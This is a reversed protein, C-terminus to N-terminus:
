GHDRILYRIYFNPRLGRFFCLSPIQPLVFFEETKNQKTYDEANQYAKLRKWM